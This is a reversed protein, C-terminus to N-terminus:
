GSTPSARRTARLGNGALVREVEEEGVDSFFLVLVGDSLANISPGEPKLPPLLLSLKDLAELPVLGRVLEAFAPDKTDISPGISALYATGPVTSGTSTPSFASASASWDSWTTAAPPPFTSCSCSATSRRRRARCPTSSSPTSAPTTSCGGCWPSPTTPCM